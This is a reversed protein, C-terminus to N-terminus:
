TVSFFFCQKLIFGYTYIGFSHEFNLLFCVSTFNLNLIFYGFLNSMAAFIIICGEQVHCQTHYILVFTESCVAAEMKLIPPM